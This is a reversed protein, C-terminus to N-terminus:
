WLAGNNYRSFINPFNCLLTAMHISHANLVEGESLMLAIAPKIGMLRWKCFSLSLNCSQECKRENFWMRQERKSALGFKGNICCVKDSLVKILCCYLHILPWKTSISLQYLLTNGNKLGKFGSNEGPQLIILIKITM